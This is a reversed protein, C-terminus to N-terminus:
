FLKAISALENEKYPKGILQFGFPLGNSHMYRPINIAPLGAINAFVTYIDAAYIETPSLTNNKAFATTPSVPMIIADYEKLIHLAKEQILRRVKQARSFFADYYGSSLVFNGLMIRKKVEKGFGETRNKVYWHQLDTGAPKNSKGYRVGDYRSLNSTAEATALIYYTPVAYPLLNFSVPEFSIQENGIFEQEIKEKIETDLGALNQAETLYAIKLKKSNATIPTDIPKQSSTADKEDHGSIVNIILQCDNVTNAIVGICDLSSGYAILGYRSVRGYTPKLGVVGCFDAPQRVSGGTDSGLSAMCTNAAVAAASGGSSGGAVQNKNLPNLTAGYHSNQNTSGMAFEDCNVTGLIIAGAAQLKEIVTANFPSSYGQLINSAATLPKNKIAIVDKIAIVVGHLPLLTKTEKLINDLEQAHTLADHEYVQLYINCDATKQIQTLYFEVMAKCSTEGLQLAHHFDGINKFM